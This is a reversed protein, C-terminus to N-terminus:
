SHQGLSKEQSGGTGTVAGLLVTTDPERSVPESERSILEEERCGASSQSGPWAGMTEWAAGPMRRNSGLAGPALAPAMWTGPPCPRVRTPGKRLLLVRRGGATMRVVGWDSLLSPSWGTVAATMVLAGAM